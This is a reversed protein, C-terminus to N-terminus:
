GASIRDRMGWGVIQSLAQHLTSADDREIASRIAEMHAALEAPSPHPDDIRLIRPHATSATKGSLYMEEVLKEGPRLGSFVIEIEGDSHEADRVQRGSLQIMMRALDVIRVPEGMDLAFMEGSNAMAGAQIVLAAAEPISIFYRVMDPHTVTLPGGAKIQRRFLQVVSGSSDIVNGFRVIAFITGNGAASARAQLLMEVVRKSAGMFSSPRVAKDTSILVFREVGCAEAANALVETGIVNNAVGVIPNSELIPVHKFAAAHYVTEVAHTRLVSRVLRDDVVSGLVSFAETPTGGATNARRMLREVELGVSFLNTEGIDLLVLRRPRYKLVQRVLETGISGGAGTVLVSRGEIANQMLTPDAPIQVRGLLDEAQVRRLNSVSVRGSAIDDVTPLARVDVPCNEIWRLAELRERQSARSTALLIQRVDLARVTDAIRAPSYVRVSDVYQRWLNRDPDIFGVVALDRSRRTAELLARGEPNAGYILVNRLAWPSASPPFAIGERLVLYSLGRRMGWLLLTGFLPYLLLVSRPVGEAGVLFAGLGLGLASVSTCVAILQTGESGFHRTVHRYLGVYFQAAVAMLPVVALLAFLSWSPAVYLLGWRVSMALWLALNLLILDAVILAARKQYRSLGLLFSLIGALMKVMLHVHGDGRFFSRDASADRDHDRTGKCFEKRAIVQVSRDYM